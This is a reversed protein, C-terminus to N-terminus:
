QQALGASFEVTKDKGPFRVEGLLRKLKEFRWCLKKKV